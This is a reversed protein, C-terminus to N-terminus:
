LDDVGDDGGWRPIVIKSSFCMSCAHRRIQSFMPHRLFVHVVFPGLQTQQPTLTDCEPLSSSEPMLSTFGSM